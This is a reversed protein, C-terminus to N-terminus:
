RRPRRLASRLHELSLAALDDGPELFPRVDSSVRAWDLEELRRLVARRWTAETLRAGSWSTQDLASNLLVLNPEPWGPAGLYWALDYIDRGKAWPRALIAHLKGAFLSARDHHQLRLTGYRRVLTTELSAGAPPRTDVEIKISLKEATRASLGLEACLGPFSVFASHVARRDSLKLEVDYAEASLDRRLRVLIEELDYGAGPRELSFDLDESFRRTGFLFRLATGGQFALPVMAGARQLAALIRAQLYERALNRAPPGTGSSAILARLEDKM